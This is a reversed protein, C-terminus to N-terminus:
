YCKKKRGPQQGVNENSVGGGRVVGPFGLFHPFISIQGGGSLPPLWPAPFVYQVTSLSATGLITCNDTYGDPSDHVAHYDDILMWAENNGKIYSPAHKGSHAQNEPLMALYLEPPSCDFSFAMNDYYIGTCVVGEFSYDDPLSTPEHFWKGPFVESGYSNQHTNARWSRIWLYGYALRRLCGDVVSQYTFQSGENNPAGVFPLLWSMSEFCFELPQCEGSPPPPVDPVDWSGSAGGGGSNYAGPIVPKVDPWSFWDDWIGM